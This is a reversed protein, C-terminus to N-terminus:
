AGPAREDGALVSTACGNVHPRRGGERGAPAPDASLSWRASPALLARGSGSVGNIVDLMVRESYHRETGGGARWGIFKLHLTYLNAALWLPPFEVGVRYRGAGLDRSWLTEGDLRQHVLLNGASDDVICFINGGTYDADLELQAEVLFPEGAELPAIGGDQRGNICVDRWGTGGERPEANERALGQSYHALGEVASGRFELRGGGLVLSTQCLEKIAALNHSVFLVTRGQAAVDEMKGLCKKQFGVDGVALVEDVLLIEPELHAAVSFALRLYMGSSYHKVPTDIFRSVEAFEVIEDLKRNIEQRRMGLIAGNLYINELGTLEHHFGTGVELLSGVRGKLDVYGETPSTIRSLIKLLTSKGAGNRGVVGIVEGRRVEFSLDKLAWLQDDGAPGRRSSRLARFPAAAAAALSDRLTRYRVRQGGIRYRKSLGEARIVIDNM